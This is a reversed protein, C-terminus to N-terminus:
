EAAYADRLGSLLARVSVVGTRRAAPLMGALDDDSGEEEDEGPDDSVYSGVSELYAKYKESWTSYLMVVLNFYLSGRGANGVEEDLQQIEELDAERQVIDRMNELAKLQAESEYVSGVAEDQAIVSEALAATLVRSVTFPDKECFGCMSAFMNEVEAEVQAATM